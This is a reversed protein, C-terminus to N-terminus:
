KVGALPRKRDKMRKAENLRRRKNMPNRPDFIEYEEDARTVNADRAQKLDDNDPQFTHTMWASSSSNIVVAESLETSDKKLESSDNEDEEDEYQAALNLRNAANLKAEFEALMKMTTDQKAAKESPTKSSKTKLHRYKKMYSSSYMDDPNEQVKQEKKKAEKNDNKQKTFNLNLDKKLKESEERLKVLKEKARKDAEVNCMNGSVDDSEDDSGESSGSQTAGKSKKGKKGM